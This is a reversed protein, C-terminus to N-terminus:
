RSLIGRLTKQTHTRRIYIKYISQKREKRGGTKFTIAAVLLPRWLHFPSLEELILFPPNLEPAACHMSPSSLQIALM